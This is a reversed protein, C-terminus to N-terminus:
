AVVMPSELGDLEPRQKIKPRVLRVTLSRIQLMPSTSNLGVILGIYEKTDVTAANAPLALGFTYGGDTLGQLPDGSPIM